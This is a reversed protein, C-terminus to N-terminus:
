SPNGADVEEVDTGADSPDASTDGDVGSVYVGEGDFNSTAPATAGASTLESNSTAAGADEEGASAPEVAVASQQGDPAVVVAEARDPADGEDVEASATVMPQSRANSSVDNAEAEGAPAQVVQSAQRLANRAKSRAPHHVASRRLLQAHKPQVLKAKAKGETELEADAVEFVEANLKQVAGSVDRMMDALGRIEQSLSLVQSNLAVRDPVDELGLCQDCAILTDFTEEPDFSDRGFLHRVPAGMKDVCVLGFSYNMIDSEACKTQIICHGEKSRHTSVCGKPGYHVPVTGFGYPALPKPRGESANSPLPKAAVAAVAAHGHRPRGVLFPPSPAAAHAVGLVSGSTERQPPPQQAKGVPRLHGVGLVSHSSAANPLKSPPPSAAFALAKSGVAPVEVHRPLTSSPLCRECVVETDFEENPDFGGVGFSHRVLGPSRQGGECDFAFEFHSTDQDECDTAIVCSGKNSQSLSVCHGPGFLVAEVFPQGHLLAV